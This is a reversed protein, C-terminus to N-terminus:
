VSASPDGVMPRGHSAGDRQVIADTGVAQLRRDLRQLRGVGDAQQLRRDGLRGSRNAQAGALHLQRQTAVGLHLAEVEVVHTLASRGIHERERQVLPGDVAGVNVQGIVTDRRRAGHHEAVQHDVDVLRYTLSGLPGPADDLLEDQQRDVAGQMQETMIVGFQVLLRGHAFRLPAHQARQVALM